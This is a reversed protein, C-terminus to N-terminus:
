CGNAEPESTLLDPPSVVRWDTALIDEGSLRYERRVPPPGQWVGLLQREAGIQVYAPPQLEATSSMEAWCRRAVAHGARLVVMAVEFDRHAGQDRM